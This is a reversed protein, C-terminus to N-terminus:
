IVFRPFYVRTFEAQIPRQGRLGGVVGFKMGVFM